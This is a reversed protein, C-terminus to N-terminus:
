GCFRKSTITTFSSEESWVAAITSSSRLSYAFRRNSCIGSFEMRVRAWLFFAMSFPTKCALPSIIRVVSASQRTGFCQISVMVALKSAFVAKTEPGTAKRCLYINKLSICANSNKPNTATPAPAMPSFRGFKAFPALTAYRFLTNKSILPNSPISWRVEPSSSINICFIAAVSVQFTRKQGEGSAKTRM